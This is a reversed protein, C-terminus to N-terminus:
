RASCTRFNRLQNALSDVRPDVRMWLVRSSRQQVARALSVIAEQRRGLAAEIYAEGLSAGVNDIGAATIRSLISEAEATRGAQALIRGVEALAAPDKTLEYSRQIEAIAEEARGLGSLARARIVHATAFDANLTLAESAKELAQQYHKQYYLAVAVQIKMAAHCHIPLSEADRRDRRRTSCDPPM